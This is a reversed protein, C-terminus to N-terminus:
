QLRIVYLMCGSDKASIFGDASSIKDAVVDLSATVRIKDRYPAFYVRSAGLLEFAAGTWNNAAATIIFQYGQRMFHEVTAAVLEFTDASPLSPSRAIMYLEAVKGQRLAEKFQPYTNGLAQLSIEEQHELLEVIPMSASNYLITDLFLDGTRMKKNADKEHLQINLAGGIIEGENNCVALSLQLLTENTLIDDYASYPDTLFLLRILWYLLNSKSWEGFHTTGFADRHQWEMLAPPYHGPPNLHRTMSENLVFSDAIVKALQLVQQHNFNDLTTTKYVTSRFLRAADMNVLPLSAPLPQLGHKASDNATPYKCYPLQQPM